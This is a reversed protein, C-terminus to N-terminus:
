KIKPGDYKGKHIMIHCEKCVPVQKRNMKQMMQTLWDKSKAKRLAKVHHIEIKDTAGCVYCAQDFAKRGRGIRRALSEVLDAPPTGRIGPKTTKPKKYSPTPYEAQIQGTQDKIQLDKGFKRFTKKKTRLRLKSALTLACSYKLIYHVRATLRGYNSAPTYYNLLGRELTRYHRVIDAPTLHILRGCRTPEGGKRAYGLREFKQVISRIPADTQTRTTKKVLRYKDRKVYGLPRKNEMTVHINFGLFSASDNSAHTIKTKSWNLELGREKQLWDKISTKIKLCDKKSGGVGILFDDAYRVYKLRKFRDDKAMRPNIGLSHNVKGKRTMKTYEPNARKREGTNYIAGLEETVYNDFGTM